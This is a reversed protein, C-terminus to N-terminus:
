DEKTGDYREGHKKPDWEVIQIPVGEKENVFTFRDTFSPDKRIEVGVVRGEDDRFYACNCFWPKHSYTRWCYHKTARCQDLTLPENM